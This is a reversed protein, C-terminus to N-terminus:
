MYSDLYLYREVKEDYTFNLEELKKSLAVLGKDQYCKPDNLCKNLQNIEEELADIEQSIQKYEYVQKYSMKPKTSKIKTSKAVVELNKDISKKEENSIKKINKEIDLYESYELVSEQISGDGQIVFLKHAIKDVFYRDHSVFILAGDFKILAQEVINITQIDLDNTPEDLILVDNKKSFLLALAVRTKEGGSLVGIKQSLFEKPFLFNKLYGYVHISAGNVEVRDGGQPCFTEILTKTDDLSNKSQDFYGIKFDGKKIVGDYQVEELLAKILTSKGSGNKGVIAIKDKQLIRTSFNRILVKKGVKICVNELEFFMKKKSQKDTKKFGKERELQIQMQRILSPIKKSDDRLKMLDAKRKENRKRRARVGQALWEEERALVKLLNENEKEKEKLLIKKQHLYDSYGGCFERLEGRDIEVVRTAINDIFYRDHSVFLLTCNRKKLLEELFSVMYVDLHNTPEDLILIDSQKLLLGALVARKKEGGSLMNINKNKHSMLSFQELIRLLMNDLDWGDYFDLVSALNSSQEILKENDYELELKASIEDFQKKTNRLFTLSNQLYDYVSIDDEFVSNQELYNILLKKQIVVKGEDVSVLSRIINILTSKGAGNQGIIAIRDKEAINLSVNALIKKDDYQKSIKILDILAM